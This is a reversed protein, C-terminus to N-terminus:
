AVGWADKEEESSIRITRAFEDIDLSARIIRGPDPHALFILVDMAGSGKEYRWAYRLGAHVENSDEDQVYRLVRLGTGLHPSEFDEVIPLEIADSADAQALERLATDRDEEEIEVLEVFVTLPIDRPHPMHLFVEADPRIAPAREAHMALIDTLLDVDGLRPKETAFDEWWEEAIARAWAQPTQAIEVDELGLEPWALPVRIWPDLRAAPKVNLWSM